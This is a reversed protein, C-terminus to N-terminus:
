SNLRRWGRRACNMLEKLVEESEIAKCGVRYCSVKDLLPSNKLTESFRVFYEHSKKVAESESYLYRNELSCIIGNSSAYIMRAILWDDEESVIDMMTRMLRKDRAHSESNFLLDIVARYENTREMNM